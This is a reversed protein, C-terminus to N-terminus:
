CPRRELIELVTELTVRDFGPRVRLRRGRPLLIEIGASPAAFNAAVVEVPV